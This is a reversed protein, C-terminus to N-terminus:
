VDQDLLIDMSYLLALAEPLSFRAGTLKNACPNIQFNRANSLDAGSMITNGFISKTLDSGSFDAKILISERFDVEHVSCNLIKIGTLDLGIFTSHDIASEVFNVKEQIGTDSWNAQAWNTGISRCSEIAVRIFTCNAVQVLSLDCDFFNCDIFRCSRFSTENFSCDKFSCSDFKSSDITSSDQNLHQFQEDFFNQESQIESRM